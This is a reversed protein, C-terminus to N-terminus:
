RPTQQGLTIASAVLLFNGIAKDHHAAITTRHLVLLRNHTARNFFTRENITVQHLFDQLRLGGILFRRDLSPRPARHDRGLKHPQRERHMVALNEVGDEHRFVHHAMPQALERGRAREFLVASM